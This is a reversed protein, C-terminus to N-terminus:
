SQRLGGGKIRPQGAYHARSGKPRRKRKDVVLDAPDIYVGIAQMATLMLYRLSCGQRIALARLQIMVYHPVTFAAQPGRGNPRAPRVKHLLDIPDVHVGISQLAALMVGRLGTEQDIARARLQSQIYEPIAFATNLGYAVPTQQDNMHVNIGNIKILM